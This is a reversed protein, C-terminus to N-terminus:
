VWVKSLRAGPYRRVIELSREIWEARMAKTPFGDREIKSMAGDPELLFHFPTQGEELTKSFDEATLTIRVCNVLEIRSRAVPVTDVSCRANDRYRFTVGHDDIKLIRRDDIVVRHIYHALYEIVHEPHCLRGAQV